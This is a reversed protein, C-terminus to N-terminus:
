PPLRDGRLALPQVGGPTVPCQRKHIPPYRYIWGTVVGLAALDVAVIEEIHPRQVKVVVAVKLLNGAGPQTPGPRGRSGPTGTWHFSFRGPLRSIWRVELSASFEAGIVRRIDAFDEARVEDQLGALENTIEQPLVDLRASLFQRGQDDGWVFPKFGSLTPRRRCGSPVRADHFAGCGLGRCSLIWWIFAIILRTFFWLINRYRSRFM